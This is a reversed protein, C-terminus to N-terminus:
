GAAANSRGAFARSLALTEALSMHIYLGILDLRREGSNAVAM